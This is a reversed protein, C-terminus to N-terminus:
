EGKKNVTVILEGGGDYAYLADYAYIIFHHLLPPNLILHGYLYLKQQSIKGWFIDQGYSYPPTPYILM